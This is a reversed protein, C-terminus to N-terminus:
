IGIQDWGVEEIDEKRPQNMLKERRKNTKLQRNILLNIEGFYYDEFLEKKSIGMERAGNIM